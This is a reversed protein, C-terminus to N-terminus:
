LLNKGCGLFNLFSIFYSRYLLLPIYLILSFFLSVKDFTTTSFLDLESSHVGGGGEPPLSYNLDEHTYYQGSM